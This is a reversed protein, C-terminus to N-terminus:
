AAGTQEVVDGLIALTEDEPVVPWSAGGFILVGERPATIQQLVEGTFPHRVTGLAEGAAVQQGRKSADMFTFGRAGVPKLVTHAELVTVAREQQPEGAIMGLHKMGNLVARRIRGEDEERFDRLGPGGGVNLLAVAKGEQALAGAMSRSDAELIVVQPLGLAKALAQSKGTDGSNFLSVYRHYSWQAGSHVEIVADAQALVEEYYRRVMQESVSGNADGTGLANLNKDDWASNHQEFEFGSTNMLPVVVLTGAVDSADIEQVLQALALASEIELGSLGSQVVLLPGHQAGQVIHLPIHVDFGGHTEGTKFKGFRKEGNKAEITGIKM